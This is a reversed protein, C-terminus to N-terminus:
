ATKAGQINTRPLSPLHQMDTAQSIQHLFPSGIPKYAQQPLAFPLHLSSNELRDNGQQSRSRQQQRHVPLSLLLRSIQSQQQEQQLLELARRQLAAARMHEQLRRAVEIEVTANIEASITPATIQTPLGQSVHPMTAQLPLSMNHRHNAPSQLDNAIPLHPEACQVPWDNSKPTSSVIIKQNPPTSIPSSAVKPPEQKYCTMKEVLDSADKQFYKHYFAGAEKGRYHRVFGWRHLKRTFSSYKASKFYHPLIEAVFRKSNLIHFSKGSPTWSIIESFEKM